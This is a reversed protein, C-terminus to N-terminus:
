AIFAQLRAVALPMDVQKQCAHDHKFCQCPTIPEIALHRAYRAGSSFSTGNEYGGFVCVSPTEVAQAVAKAVAAASDEGSSCSKTRITL